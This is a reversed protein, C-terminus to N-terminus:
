SKSLFRAQYGFFLCLNPYVTHNWKILIHGSLFSLLNSPRKETFLNFIRYSHIVDNMKDSVRVYLFCAYNKFNDIIPLGERKM